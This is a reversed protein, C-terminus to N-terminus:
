KKSNEFKQIIHRIKIPTENLISIAEADLFSAGWNFKSLAVDILKEAEKLAEYLETELM